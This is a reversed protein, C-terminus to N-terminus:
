VFFITLILAIVASAGFMLSTLGAIKQWYTLEKTKIEIKQKM